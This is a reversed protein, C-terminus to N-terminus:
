EVGEVKEIRYVDGEFALLLEDDDVGAPRNATGHDTRLQVNTAEDRYALLNRLGHHHPQMVQEPILREDAETPDVGAPSLHLERRWDDDEERWRRDEVVLVDDDEDVVEADASPAVTTPESELEFLAAPEADEVSMGVRMAYTGGGLHGVSSGDIRPAGAREEEGRDFGAGGFFRRTWSQSGGPQVHSLPSPVAYPAVHFWEDDVLKYLTWDYPNGSAAETHHNVYTFEIKGPTSVREASPYLYTQSGADAAHFWRTPVERLDPVEEGAFQSDVTPGPHDDEWLTLRFGPDAFSVDYRAPQVGDGEDHALVVFEGYVTEGPGLRIRDPFAATPSGVPQWAGADTREFEPDRDIFDSAATPHVLLGGRYTTEDPERDAYGEIDASRPADFPPVDRPRVYEPFAGENTANAALTLPGDEGPEADVRLRVVVRDLTSYQLGALAGSLGLDADEFLDYFRNEPLELPDHDAPPTAAEPEDSEEDAGNREDDPNSGGVGSCGAVSAAGAAALLALVNRRTVM